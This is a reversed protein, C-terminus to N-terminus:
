HGSIAAQSTRCSVQSMHTPSLRARMSRLTRQMSERATSNILPRVIHGLLFPVSRSLTISECEVIVGGSVQQYRWYSNMRWLFGRDHGEPKEREGNDSLREIEAIKTAISSSSAQNAGYRQYRVLHETHYVVTVIKSRQLKLYMKLQGPGRELIRSDLVDEQKTDEARPNEIRSLVLNLSVEPIFISGRWHHIMGGSIEIKNAPTVQKVPIEGSMVAQQESAMDRHEQFDLALFGKKSSLEAAMRREAAEVYAQWAALTEPHLDAAKVSVAGFLFLAGALLSIRIAIRCTKKITNMVRWESHTAACRFVIRDGAVFTLISGLAIALANALLYNMRLKGVFLWMLVLNGALSLAGNALHFRLLRQVFRGDQDRTRDVWTWHEHWFLNHLVTAEVALGTAPLYDLRFLSTLVWLVGMQVAIGMAGVSNFVIWRRFVSSTHWPYSM